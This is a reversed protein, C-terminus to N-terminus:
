LYFSHWLIISSQKPLPVAKQHLYPIPPSLIKAARSRYQADDRTRM